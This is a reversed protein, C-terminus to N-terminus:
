TKQYLHLHFHATVSQLSAQLADKKQESAQWFFPTMMLLALRIEPNALPVLFRSQKEAILTFGTHTPSTLQHKEPKDYIHQKLEFLHDFAPSVTMWLGKPKLIRAIENTSSPAFVQIVADQSCKQLPISYTSAVAFQAYKLRKAAKRVAEKSIDIGSFHEWNPNDVLLGALQQLYYGEGCGADFLRAQHWSFPAHQSLLTGMLKVLPLYAESQLFVRRANVMLKSDGPAKSNKHHALLLNVYGEKARDFTHGQDCRWYASSGHLVSSCTPCQWSFPQM